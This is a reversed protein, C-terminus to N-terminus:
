ARKKYRLITKPIYKLIAGFVLVNVLHKDTMILYM